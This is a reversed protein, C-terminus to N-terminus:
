TIKKINHSSIDYILRKKKPFIVSQTCCGFNQFQVVLKTGSSQLARGRQGDDKLMFLVSTKELFLLFNFRHRSMHLSFLSLFISTPCSLFILMIQEVQIIHINVNKRKLIHRSPFPYAPVQFVYYKNLICYFFTLLSYDRSRKSGKDLM